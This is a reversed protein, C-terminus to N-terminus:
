APMYKAASVEILHVTPPTNHNDAVLLIITWSVMIRELLSQGNTEWYATSELAGQGM